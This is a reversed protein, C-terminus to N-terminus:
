LFMINRLEPFRHGQDDKIISFWSICEVWPYMVSNGRLIIGQLSKPHTNMLLKRDIFQKFVLNLLAM